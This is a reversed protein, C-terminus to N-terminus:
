KKKSIGGNRMVPRSRGKLSKFGYPSSKQDKGYKMYDGKNNGTGPADANGYKYTMTGKGKAVKRAAAKETIPRGTKILGGEQMKEVKNGKADYGNMLRFTRMSSSSAPVKKTPSKKTSVKKVSGGDQFLSKLGKKFKGYMTDKGFYNPYRKEIFDDTGKAAIYGPTNKILMKGVKKTTKVADKVDKKADDYSTGKGFYNPYRKVATDELSPSPKKSGGKQMIEKGYTTKTKAGGIQMKKTTKM